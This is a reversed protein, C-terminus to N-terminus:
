YDYEDDLDPDYVFAQDATGEEIAITEEVEAIAADVAEIEDDSVYERLTNLNHLASRGGITGLGAIAELRVPMELDERAVQTLMPVVGEDEYQSLSQVAAQREDADASRLMSELIGIWAPDYARGMAKVAGLRLDPDGAEFHEAIVERVKPTESDASVSVLAAARLRPALGADHALAMLSKRLLLQERRDLMEFEGLTAFSELAELAALRVDDSPDEQALKVLPEILSPDDYPELGAAALQRVAPSPDDILVRFFRMFDLRIDDLGLAAVHDAITQRAQDDQIGMWAKRLQHVQKRTIDSFGTLVFPELSDQQIAELAEDFSAYQAEELDAFAAEEPDVLDDPLDGEGEIGYMTTNIEDAPDPNRPM